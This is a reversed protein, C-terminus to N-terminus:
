KNWLIKPPTTPKDEQRDETTTIQSALVVNEQIFNHNTPMTGPEDELHTIEQKPIHITAEAELDKETTNLPYGFLKAPGSSWGTPGLM